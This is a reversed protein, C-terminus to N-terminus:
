EDLGKAPHEERAREVVFEATKVAGAFDGAAANVEAAALFGDADGGANGEAFAINERREDAVAGAAQGKAFRREFGHASAQSGGEPGHARAVAVDV